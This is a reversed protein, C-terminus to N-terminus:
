ECKALGPFIEFAGVGLELSLLYIKQFLTQDAVVNVTAAAVDRFEWIEIGQYPTNYAAAKGYHVLLRVPRALGGYHAIKDQLCKKLTGLAADPLYWGGPLKVFIWPSGQVWKERRHGAVILPDFAVAGLYKGLNAYAGFERFQRGEPSHWHRQSPWRCETEQILAWMEAQFHGADAPDFRPVDTRPVLMVARFNSSPNEGQTGIAKSIAEKLRKRRLAQDMQKCDPWQTLEFDIEQGSNLKVIVDPFRAHPQTWSIVTNAFAPYAALFAQFAVREEAEHTPNRTTM